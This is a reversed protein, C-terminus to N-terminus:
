VDKIEEDSILKNCVPCIVKGDMLGTIVVPEHKPDGDEWITVVIISKCFLCIIEVDFFDVWGSM